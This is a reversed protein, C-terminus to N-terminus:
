SRGRQPVEGGIRAAPSAVARAVLRNGLSEPPAGCPAQSLVARLRPLTVFRLPSDLSPVESVPVLGAGAVEFVSWPETQAFSRAAPLWRVFFLYRRFLELPPYNPSVTSLDIGDVVTRGGPRTVAVDIGPALARGPQSRLVETLRLTHDAYLFAGRATPSSISELRGVVVADSACVARRLAEEVQAGAPVTGIVALLLARVSVARLSRSAPATRM